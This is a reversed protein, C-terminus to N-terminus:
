PRGTKLQRGVCKRWFGDTWGLNTKKKFGKKKVWVNKCRIPGGQKGGWDTVVNLGVPSIKKATNHTTNHQHINRRRDGQKRTMETSLLSTPKKGGRKGWEGEYFVV